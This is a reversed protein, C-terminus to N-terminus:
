VEFSLSGRCLYYKLIFLSVNNFSEIVFTPIEQSRILM